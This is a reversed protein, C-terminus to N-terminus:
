FLPHFLRVDYGKKLLVFSRSAAPKYMLMQIIQLGQQMPERLCHWEAMLINM